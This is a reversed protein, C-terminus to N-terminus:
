QGDADVLGARSNLEGSVQRAMEFRIPDDTSNMTHSAGHSGSVALHHCTCTCLGEAKEGDLIEFRYGNCLRHLLPVRCWMQARPGALSPARSGTAIEDQFLQLTRRQRQWATLARKEIDTAADGKAMAAAALRLVQQEIEADTMGDEYTM